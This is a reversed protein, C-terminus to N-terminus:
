SLLARIVQRALKEYGEASKEEKKVGELALRLIHAFDKASRFSPKLQFDGSKMAALTAKTLAQTLAANSQAALDTALSLYLEAIEAAHPGSHGIQLLHVDRAILATELRRAFPANTNLAQTALALAEAHVQQALARFIDEKSRFSRYLATRAVGSEQAIDDMTTRSFGYRSFASLAALLIAGNRDSPTSAM